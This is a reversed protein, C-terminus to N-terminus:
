DLVCVKGENPYNIRIMRKTMKDYHFVAKIPKSNMPTGNLVEYTLTSEINNVSWRQNHVNDRYIIAAIYFEPRKFVAYSHVEDQDEDLDLSISCHEGTLFKGTRHGLNVAAIDAVSGFASGTFILLGIVTFLKM